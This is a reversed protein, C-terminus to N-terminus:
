HKFFGQPLLCKQPTWGIRLYSCFSMGCAGLVSGIHWSCGYFCSVSCLSKLSFATYYFEFIFSSSKVLSGEAPDIRVSCWIECVECFLIAQSTIVCSKWVLYLIANPWDQSKHLIATVDVCLINKIMLVCIWVWPLKWKCFVVFALFQKHKFNSM